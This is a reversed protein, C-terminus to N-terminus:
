IEVQVESIRSSYFRDNKVADDAEKLLAGSILSVVADTAIDM